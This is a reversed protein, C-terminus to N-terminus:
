RLILYTMTSIVIVGYLNMAFGERAMTAVTFRGTSFTILNPPTAVPLMFACSASLAAPIMFIKPDVEAAIAGAALIPM